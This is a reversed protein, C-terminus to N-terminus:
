RRTGPPRASPSRGPTRSSCCSRRTRPTCRASSRSGPRQRRPTRSAPQGRYGQSAAEDVYTGETVVLSFGGRAFEGYYDAMRLTALGDPTASTRTMPAVGVRNTLPLPGIATPTFLTAPDAHGYM